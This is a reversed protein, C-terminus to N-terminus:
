SLYGYGLNINQTTHTAENFYHENLIKTYEWNGKNLMILGFRAMCRKTSWYMRNNDIQIHIAYM